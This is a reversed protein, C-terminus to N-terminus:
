MVLSDSSAKIGPVLAMHIFPVVGGRCIHGPFLADLESDGRLALLMHRPTIRSQKLERSANGALELIEATIYEAVAAIYVPSTSGVRMTLKGKLYGKLYSVPFVLGASRSTPNARRGGSCSKTVAKTGEAVAHRALEGPLLLRVATQVERSTVTGLKKIEVLTKIEGILRDILDMVMTNITTM